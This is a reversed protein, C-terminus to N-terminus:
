QKKFIFSFARGTQGTLRPNQSFPGAYKRSQMAVNVADYIERDSLGAYEKWNNVLIHTLKGYGMYEHNLQWEMCASLTLWAERLRTVCGGPRGPLIFNDFVGRVVRLEDCGAAERTSDGSHCADVVIVITGGSGVKRRLRTMYGAIEDDSLHKEGRDLACYKRCADYPIWCEDWGDEEDGDLDTMRQGHGSFHIYVVDGYGSRRILSELSALINGKTAMANVLIKIDAFGNALLMDNVVHVDRDGNIKGWSKDLQEGLGIVIARRTVAGAEM